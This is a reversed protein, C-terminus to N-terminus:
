LSFNIHFKRPDQNKVKPNGLHPVCNQLIELPHFSTKEPIELSLTVFRFIGSPPNWFLVDVVWGTQLKEPITWYVPSNWGFLWIVTKTVDGSSSNWFFNWVPSLTSAPNGVPTSLMFRSPPPPLNKLIQHLPSSDICPPLM